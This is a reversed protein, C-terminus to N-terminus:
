KKLQFRYDVVIGNVLMKQGEYTVKGGAPVFVIVAANQPSLKIGAATSINRAIFKGTVTNYLDISKGPGPNVLVSKNETYPNYYLYSPYAKDHYFDTALLNFQLIGPVGTARIISGFIGVHASGYISFQSEEPNKGPV